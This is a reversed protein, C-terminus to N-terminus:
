PKGGGWHITVGHVGCGILDLVHEAFQIDRHRVQQRFVTAHVEPDFVQLAGIDDLFLCTQVVVVPDGRPDIFYRRLVAHQWWGLPHAASESRDIKANYHVPETPSGQDGEPGTKKDHVRRGHRGLDGQGSQRLSTSGETYLLPAVYPVANGGTRRTSRQCESPSERRSSRRWPQNCRRM